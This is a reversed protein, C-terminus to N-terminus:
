QNFYSSLDFRYFSLYTNGGQNGMNEAGNIVLVPEPFLSSTLAISLGTGTFSSPKTFLVYASNAPVEISLISSDRPTYLYGWFGGDVLRVVFIAQASTLEVNTVSTTRAWADLPISNGLDVNYVNSVKAIYLNDIM